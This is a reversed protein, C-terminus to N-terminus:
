AAGTHLHGPAHLQLLRPLNVVIARAERGTRESGDREVLRDHLRRAVREADRLTRSERGHLDRWAIRAGRGKSSQVSERALRGIGERELAGDRFRDALEDRM